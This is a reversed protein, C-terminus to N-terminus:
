SFIDPEFVNLKAWAVSMGNLLDLYTKYVDDRYTEIKRDRAYAEEYVSPTSFIKVGGLVRNTRRDNVTRQDNVTRPDNYRQDFARQQDVNRQANWDEETRKRKAAVADTTSENSCILRLRELYRQKKEEYETSKATTVTVATAGTAAVADQRRAAEIFRFLTKDQSILDRAGVIYCQKPWVVDRKPACLRFWDRKNPTRGIKADDTSSEDKRENRTFAKPGDLLANVTYSDRLNCLTYLAFTPSFSEVQYLTADDARNPLQDRDTFVLRNSVAEELSRTLREDRTEFSTTRRKKGRVISENVGDNAADIILRRDFHVRSTLWVKLSYIQRRVADDCRETLQTLYRETFDRVSLTLFDRIFRNDAIGGGAGNRRVTMAAVVYVLDGLRPTSSYTEGNQRVTTPTGMRSLTAVASLFHNWAVLSEPDNQNALTDETVVFYSKAANRTDYPLPRPQRADDEKCNPVEFRFERKLDDNATSAPQETNEM